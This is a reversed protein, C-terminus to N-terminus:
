FSAEAVRWDSLFTAMYNEEEQQALGMQMNAKFSQPHAQITHSVLFQNSSTM